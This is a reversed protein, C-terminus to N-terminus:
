IEAGAEPEGFLSTIDPEAVSFKATTGQLLVPVNEAYWERGRGRVRPKVTIDIDSHGTDM